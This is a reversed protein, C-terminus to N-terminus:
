LIIEITKYASTLGKIIRINKLPINLNKSLFRILKENAKGKEPQAAIKIRFADEGYRGAFEDKSSGPIVKVKIFAKKKGTLNKLLEEL